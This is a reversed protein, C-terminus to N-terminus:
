CSAGFQFLVLLLDIDNVIGDCNVDEPLYDRSGFQFLVRLLDTDNVRGDRNIDEPCTAVQIDARAASLTVGNGYVIM